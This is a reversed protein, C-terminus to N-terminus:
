NLGFPDDTDPASPTSDGGLGFPDDDSPAPTSPSPDLGFPDDAGAPAPAPAPAPAAEGGATAAAGAPTAGTAVSAAAPDWKSEESVQLRDGAAIQDRGTLVDCVASNPHLNTVQVQGVVEDGRVVDLKTGANVRQNAGASITVFGWDSFNQTVSANISKMQEAEQMDAIEKNVAITKTTAERTAVLNKFNEKAIAIEQQVTNTEVTIRQVQRALEPLDGIEALQVKLADLEAQKTDIQRQITTKETDMTMRKSEATKFQSHVSDAEDNTAEAAATEETISDKFKQQHEELGTVRAKARTLLEKELKADETNMYRFAAAGGACLIAIVTLPKWM